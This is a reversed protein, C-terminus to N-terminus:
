FLIYKQQSTVIRGQPIGNDRYLPQTNSCKNNDSQNEIQPWLPRIAM